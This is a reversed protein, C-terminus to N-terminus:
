DDEAFSVVYLLLNNHPDIGHMSVTALRIPLIYNGYLNEGSESILGRKKLKVEVYQQDWKAPIKWFSQNYEYAGEPLLKYSTHHATNYANLAESDTELTYALNWQNHYNTTVRTYFVSEDDSSPVFSAGPKMLGSDKLRLYPQKVKPTLIAFMKREEAAEISHDTIEMRCPLAYQTGSEELNLLIDPHFDVQFSKRYDGKGFTLESIKAAYCDSPMVQYSTGNVQNYESLLAEDIVLKVRANQLGKGGKIVYLDHTYTGWNFITPATLGPENLYIKDDVMYENLYDQDCSSTLLLVACTLCYILDRKM